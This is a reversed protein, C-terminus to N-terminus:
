VNQAEQLVKKYTGRFRAMGKQLGILASSPAIKGLYKVRNVAEASAGMSTTRMNGSGLGRPHRITGYDKPKGDLDGLARFWGIKAAAVNPIKILKSAKADARSLFPLYNWTGDKKSWAQIAYKVLKLKKNSTAASRFTMKGDEGQYRYLGNWPQPMDVVPRVKYKKSIRKYNDGNGPPTAKSASQAAFITAQKVLGAMAKGTRKQVLRIAASFEQENVLVTKVESAM